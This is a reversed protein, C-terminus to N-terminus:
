GDLNGSRWLDYWRRAIGGSSGLRTVVAKDRFEEGFLCLAEKRTEKSAKRQRWNQPPLDYDRLCESTLEIWLLLQSKVSVFM